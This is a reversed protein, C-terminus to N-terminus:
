EKMVCKQRPFLFRNTVLRSFIAAAEFGDFQAQYPVEHGCVVLTSTHLTCLFDHEFRQSFYQSCKGSINM